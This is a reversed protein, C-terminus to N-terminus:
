IETKGIGITYEEWDKLFEEIEKKTVGRPSSGLVQVKYSHQEEVSSLPRTPRSSPNSGEITPQFGVAKGSKAITACEGCYWTGIDGGMNDVDGVIASEPHGCPM